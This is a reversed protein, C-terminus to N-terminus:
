KGLECQQLGGGLNLDNLGIQDKTSIKLGNGVSCGSFDKQIVFIIVGGGKMGGM